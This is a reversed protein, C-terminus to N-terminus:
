YTFHQRFIVTFHFIPSSGPRTHAPKTRSPGLFCHLFIIHHTSLIYFLSLFSIFDFPILSRNSLICRSAYPTHRFEFHNCFQIFDIDFWLDLHFVIVSLSVSKWLVLLFLLLCGVTFMSECEKLLLLDPLKCFRHFTLVYMISSFFLVISLPIAEMEDSVIGHWSTNLDPLPFQEFPHQPQIFCNCKIAYCITSNPNYVSAISM